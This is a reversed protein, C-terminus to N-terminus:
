VDGDVFSVPEGTRELVPVGGTHEQWRGVIVDVYREDLEMLLSRRRASHAAILLSGSGGFLDLLVGGPRTSNEVGRRVLAVPKMTPHLRSASPRDHEWVTDQRRGGHWDHGAGDAWGYLVTEHAPDYLPIPVPEGDAWGYLVSEHRGHYDQRGLVFRDKVWVIQQRLELGAADLQARFITELSGSPSCIYFAGGPRLVERMCAFAGALLEALADPDLDDNQITLADATGGVYSVGYPPDTWVADVVVDGVLTRVDELSTSDGCMVRHEGCVYVDGRASIPSIPKDPVDDADTLAPPEPALTAALEALEADLWGTGDLDPLSQLLALLEADDYTALDSTRNDRLEIRRATDEDVEVFVAALKEWGLSIAAALVGRGAIVRGSPLNVVVPKYQGFDRLSEAISNINSRRPNGGLVILDKVPVALQELAPASIM